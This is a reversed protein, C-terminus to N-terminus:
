FLLFPQMGGYMRFSNLCHFIWFLKLPYVSCLYLDGAKSLFIIALFGCFISLLAVLCFLAHVSTNHFTPFLHYETSTEIWYNGKEKAYRIDLLVNKINSCIKKCLPNFTWMKTKLSSCIFIGYLVMCCQKLDNWGLSMGGSQYAIHKM